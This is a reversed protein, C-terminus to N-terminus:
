CALPRELALPGAAPLAEGARILQCTVRPRVGALLIEDTRITPLFEHSAIVERFVRPAM